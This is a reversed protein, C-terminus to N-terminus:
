ERAKRRKALFLSIAGTSGRILGVEFGRFIAKGLFLRHLTRLFCEVGDIGMDTPFLIATGTFAFTKGHPPHHLLHQSQVAKVTKGHRFAWIMGSQQSTMLVSVKRAVKVIRTLRVQLDCMNVTLTDMPKRRHNPGRQARLTSPEVYSLSPLSHCATPPHQTRRHSHLILTM